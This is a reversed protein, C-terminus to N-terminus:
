ISEVKVNLTKLRITNKKNLKLYMRSKYKLYM